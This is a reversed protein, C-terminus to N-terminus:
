VVKEAIVKMQSNFGRDKVSELLSGDSVQQKIDRCYPVTFSVSKFHQKAEEVPMYIDQENEVLGVIQNDLKYKPDSYLPLQSSFFSISKLSPNCLRFVTDSKSIAALNMPEGLDSSCDIIIFDALSAATDILSKAKDVSFEPYSYHNEGDSYGMLGINSMGKVTAFHAVMDDPGIETKSLVAGISPLDERKYNPFLVPLRM